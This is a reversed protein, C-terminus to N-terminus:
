SLLLLQTKLKTLNGPYLTPPLAFQASSFDLLEGTESGGIMMTELAKGGGFKQREM